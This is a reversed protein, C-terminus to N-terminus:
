VGEKNPKYRNLANATRKAMTKSIMRGIVQGRHSVSQQHSSFVDAPESSEVPRVIPSQEAALKRNM